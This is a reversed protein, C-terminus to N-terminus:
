PIDIQYQANERTFPTTGSIVLIAEKIQNFDIQIEATQNPLIEIYTVTTANGVSILSLRYTQPLQNSVRAFGEAIWGGDGEEFDSFYDIAPISIDDLLLGEGNVAPDTVYEFRLILKKGAYDSLDVKEQIWGSSRGNYGWGYSSGTPNEGTGTPTVVFQWTNGNDTSALLYLYDYDKEIDFWTQYSMEIKGNTNTLDFEQTLTMDSDDGKNSWFARQGSFANTPLLAVDTNGHFQITVLGNCRILLYDAGFQNVDSAYHNPCQTISDTKTVSPVAPYNPYSFRGDQIKANSIYNTITWDVFFDNATIPKGTLSDTANISKLVDDVSEMGNLPSRVLAVTADEGFRNLFYNLFMFSAGYHPITNDEPWDTLQIDPNRAFTRDFGVPYGNIFEALVSFGENMWSSENLDLNWHIMHQFEHALTGYTEKDSLDILDGNFVFMEHANSYEYVLPHVADGASFYGLVSLGIGRALLIHIHVDEDIGPTNESGFFERNTPYIKDEFTEALKALATPDFRIGDEIWFYTHATSFQMTATVQFPRNTDSDIVWFKKTDGTSFPGSPLTAPINQLGKLRHALDADNSEPVHTNELLTLTNISNESPANSDQSPVPPSTPTSIADNNINIGPNNDIKEGIAAFGFILGTGILVCCCCFIVAFLAFFLFPSSLPNPKENM